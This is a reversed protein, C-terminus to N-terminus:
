ALRPLVFTPDEIGLDNLIPADILQLPWQINGGNGELSVVNEFVSVNVIEFSAVVFPVTLAEWANKRWLNRSPVDAAQWDDLATM